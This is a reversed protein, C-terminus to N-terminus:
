IIYNNLNGKFEVYSLKSSNILCEEISSDVIHKWKMMLKKDGIINMNLLIHNIVIRKNNM